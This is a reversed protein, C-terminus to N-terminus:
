SIRRDMHPVRTKLKRSGNTKPRGPQYIPKPEIWPAVEHFVAGPDIRGLAAQADPACAYEIKEVHPLVTHRPVFPM